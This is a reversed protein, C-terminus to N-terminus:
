EEVAKCIRRCLQISTQVPDSNFVALITSPWGADIARRGVTVRREAVPWQHSYCSVFAAKFSDFPFGAETPTRVPNWDTTLRSGDFRLVM